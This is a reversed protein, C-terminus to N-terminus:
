RIDAVSVRGTLWEVGVAVRRMGNDLIIRGGTSSGDPNFGIGGTEASQREGAITTLQLGLAPPLPRAPGLGAQYRHTALDLVFNTRRNDVIAGSRALRLQAALEAATADINPRSLPMRTGVILALSFGMIALVVLLELLTFGTDSQRPERIGAIM